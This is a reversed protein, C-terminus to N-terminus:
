MKEKLNDDNFFDICDPYQLCEVLEYDAIDIRRIQYYNDPCPFHKRYADLFKPSDM